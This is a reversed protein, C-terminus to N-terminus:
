RCNVTPAYSPVDRMALALLQSGLAESCEWLPLIGHERERGIRAIEDIAKHNPYNLRRSGQNGQRHLLLLMLRFHTSYHGELYIDM